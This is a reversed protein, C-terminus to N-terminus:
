WRCGWHLEEQGCTMDGHKLLIAKKASFVDELVREQGDAGSGM